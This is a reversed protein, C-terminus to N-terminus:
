HSTLPFSGWHIGFSWPQGLDQHMRVADDPNVHQQVMFWRPEYAGIPLAAVDFPGYRRAIEKLQNAYAPSYGTDGAFFLSFGPACRRHGCSAQPAGSRRSGAGGTGPM